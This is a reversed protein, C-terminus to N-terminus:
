AIEGPGVLVRTTFFVGTPTRRTIVRNMWCALSIVNDRAGSQRPAPRTNTNAAPRRTFAIVNSNM